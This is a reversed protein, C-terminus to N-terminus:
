RVCADGLMLAPLMLLVLALMSIGSVGAALFRIFRTHEDAPERDRQLVRVILVTMGLAAAVGWTSAVFPVIPIALVRTDAFGRACALATFVYVVLFSLAYALLGGWILLTTSAFRHTQM